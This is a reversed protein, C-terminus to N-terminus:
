LICLDLETVKARIQAANVMTGHKGRPGSRQPIREHRIKTDHNGSRGATEGPDLARVAGVVNKAQAARERDLMRESAAARKAQPFQQLLVLGDPREARHAAVLGHLLDTCPQARDIQRAPLRRRVGVGGAGHIGVLREIRRVRPWLKGLPDVAGELTGVLDLMRFASGLAVPERRDDGVRLRAKPAGEVAEFDHLGVDFCADGANMELVLERGLFLAAVQAALDQDRGLGRDAVEVGRPERGVDASDRGDEDGAGIRLARLQDGGVDVLAVLREQGALPRGFAEEAERSPVPRSWQM